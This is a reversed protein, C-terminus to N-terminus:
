KLEFHAIIIKNANQSLNGFVIPVLAATSFGILCMFGGFVVAASLM